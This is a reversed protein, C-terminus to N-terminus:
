SGFAIYRLAVGGTETWYDFGTITSNALSFKAAILNPTPTSIGIATSFKQFKVPYTYTGSVKLDDAYGWLKLLRSCDM